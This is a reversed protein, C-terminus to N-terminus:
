PVAPYHMRPKRGPLGLDEIEQAKAPALMADDRARQAHSAEGHGLCAEHHPAVEVRALRFGKGRM